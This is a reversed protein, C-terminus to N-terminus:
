GRGHGRFRQGINSIITENDYGKLVNWAERSLSGLYREKRIREGGASDKETWYRWLNWGDDVQRWECGWPTPPMDLEGAHGAESKKLRLKVPANIRFTTSGGTEDQRVISDIIGSDSGNM